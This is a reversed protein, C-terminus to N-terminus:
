HGFSLRWNPFRSVSSEPKLAIRPGVVM